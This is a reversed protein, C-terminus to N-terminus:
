TSSWIFSEAQYCQCLQRRPNCINAKFKNIKRKGLCENPTKKWNIQMVYMKPEDRDRKRTACVCTKFAVPVLYIVSDLMGYYAPTRYCHSGGHRIQSQRGKAGYTYQWGQDKKEYVYKGRETKEASDMLFHCTLLWDAGAPAQPRITLSIKPICIFNLSITGM